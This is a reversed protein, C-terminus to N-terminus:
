VPAFFGTFEALGVLLLIAGILFIWWRKGAFYGIALVILGLVVFVTGWADNAAFSLGGSPGAVM